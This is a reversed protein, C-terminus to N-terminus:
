TVEFNIVKHDRNGLIKKVKVESMLDVNNAIVLDMVAKSKTPSEVMQKMLKLFKAVGASAANCNM